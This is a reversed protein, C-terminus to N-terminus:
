GVHFIAKSGDSKEANVTQCGTAIVLVVAAAMCLMMTKSTNRINM